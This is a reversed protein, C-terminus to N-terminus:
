RRVILLTETATLMLAGVRSAFLCFLWQSSLLVRMAILACKLKILLFAAITCHCNGGHYAHVDNLSLFNRICLHYPFKPKWAFNVFTGLGFPWFFRHPFNQYILKSTSVV